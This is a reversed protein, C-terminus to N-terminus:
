IVLKGDKMAAVEDLELTAQAMVLDLHAAARVKGGPFYENTGIGIHINGLTGENMLPRGDARCKPNMGIGLEAINYVNPDGTAELVERLARAERGGKIATALGRGVEVEIPEDVLVFGYEPPLIDLAVDAVFRGEATGEVPGCNVEINPPSSLMGDEAFGHFAQGKRGEIGLTLDTGGPTTVRAVKARTVLEAMKEVKPRWAHFDIDFADEALFKEDLQPTMTVKIGKKLAEVRLASHAINTSMAAILADVRLGMQSVPDPPPTEVPLPPLITLIPLAGMQYAVSALLRGVGATKYDCLILVKDEKEVRTLDLITRARKPLLMEDLMKGM